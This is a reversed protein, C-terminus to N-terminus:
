KYDIINKELGGSYNCKKKSNSIKIDQKKISFSRRYGMAVLKLILVYGVVNTTLKSM